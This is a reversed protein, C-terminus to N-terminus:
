QIAHAMPTPIKPFPTQKESSTEEVSQNYKIQAVQYDVRSDSSRKTGFM